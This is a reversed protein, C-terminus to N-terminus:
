DLIYSLHDFLEWNFHWLLSRTCAATHPIVKEHLLMGRRKNQIARLLKKTNLIVATINNHDRSAHIEGDASREQGLFCNGDAKQWAINTSVIEAQRTFTHADVAKVAKQNWRECIFDLNRWRNSTRHSQYIWIWRQPIVRFLDVFASAMRQTKHASTLMKPVWRACFKHYGLRVTIIDYLVTLSIWMFTRFHHLATNWLTKLWCKSCSWGGVVSLRGSWEDDHVDTRLDKCM